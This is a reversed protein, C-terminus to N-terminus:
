IISKLVNEVDAISKVHVARMGVARAGEVNELSDDFFLIRSEPFGMDAAVARFAEADPKRKGIECSVFVRRFVRLM